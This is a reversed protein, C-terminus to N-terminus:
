MSTRTSGDSLKKPSPAEWSNACHYSCVTTTQKPNAVWEKPLINKTWELAMATESSCYRSKPAHPPKELCGNRKSKQEATNSDTAIAVAKCCSLLRSCHRNTTEKKYCSPTM